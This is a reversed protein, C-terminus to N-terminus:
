VLLQVLLFRALSAAEPTEHREIIAVVAEADGARAVALVAAVCV